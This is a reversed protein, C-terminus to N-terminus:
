YTPVTIQQSQDNLANNASTSDQASQNLGSNISSLGANLNQDSNSSNALTNVKGSSGSTSSTTTTPSTQGSTSVPTNTKYHNRVEWGVFGVVVVVVVLLVIELASSGRSSAHFRKRM